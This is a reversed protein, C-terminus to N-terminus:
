RAWPCQDPWHWSMKEDTDEAEPRYPMVYKSLYHDPGEGYFVHIEVGRLNRGM